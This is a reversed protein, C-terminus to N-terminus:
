IEEWTDNVVKPNFWKPLYDDIITQVKEEAEKTTNAKIEIEFGVTYNKETPTYEMLEDMSKHLAAAIRAFIDITPVREGREYNGLAVRTIGAMQSLELQSLGQEKRSRKIAEGVNEKNFM